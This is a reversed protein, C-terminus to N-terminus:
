GALFRSVSAKLDPQRVPPELLARYAERVDGPGSGAMRLAWVVEAAIDMPTFTGQRGVGVIGLESWGIVLRRLRAHCRATWIPVHDELREVVAGAEEFGELGLRAADVVVRSPLGADLESGSPVTAHFLTRREGGYSSLVRYFSAEEGVLHVEDMLDSPGGHLAVQVADATKLMSADHALRSDLGDGLWAAICAPPRAIWLDGEVPVEEHATRVAVVRGGEVRLGLIEVQTRVEGGAALLCALAAALSEAPGGGAVQAASAEAGGHVTRAVSCSLADGPAGFRAAAYDQYLHRYVPAGMRRTVWDQYSREERGEGTLPTLGNRLRREIWRRGVEPLADARFLRAISRKSLPLAHLGGRGLMGRKLDPAEVLSGLVAEVEVRRGESVQMRGTGVPLDPATRGSPTQAQQLLLVQEGASAAAAAARLAGPGRGIVVRMSV